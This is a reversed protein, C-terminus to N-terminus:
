LGVRGGLRIPVIDLLGEPNTTAGTQLIEPVPPAYSEFEGYAGMYGWRFYRTGQNGVATDMIVGPRVQPLSGPLPPGPFALRAAVGGTNFTQFGIVSYRGPNLTDDTTLVPAASWANATPTFSTTYRVTYMEGQPVNRDGDGITLIAFDREAVATTNTRDVEIPEVPYLTFNHRWFEAFQPRTSPAAAQEIPKIVPRGIPKLHPLNFRMRTVTLGLAYAWMLQLPVPLLIRNSQDLTVTVDPTLTPISTDTQASSTSDSLAVTWLM